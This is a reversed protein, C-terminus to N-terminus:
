KTPTRNYVGYEKTSDIMAKINTPNAEDISSGHTLIFGGDEGVVDILKKCYDRVEQAIGVHLISSPVNGMICLHGRLTEKAKSMDTADFHCLVKGRPLERLHELRTTYDGEFFPCPTLGKEVLALILKKLTPWYFTEFQQLSMFGDAGRHLPMFVRGSAGAVTLAAEVQTPLLKECAQILKDPRRYMDIMTGRMGRLFDSIVDFPASCSAVSHCPFGMTAMDNDFSGMASRWNLAEEGARRLSDLAKAFDPTALQGISTAVSTGLLRTLRPLREFPALASFVRPLYTRVVFDSPDSLFSDYEDEKMFEGEVAQHSHTAPVSHGPWKMIRTGLADLTQGSVTGIMARYFDPELELITKRSAAKWKAPDYFAADCSIGAYKAPFYGLGLHVPVRDPCRLQIADWVRKEREKYLERHLKEEEKSM